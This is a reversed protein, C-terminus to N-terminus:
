SLIAGVQGAVGRFISVEKTVVERFEKSSRIQELCADYDECLGLAFRPSREQRVHGDKWVATAWAPLPVTSWNSATLFNSDTEWYDWAREDLWTALASPDSAVKPSPIPKKDKGDKYAYRLTAQFLNCTRHPVDAVIVSEGKSLQLADEKGFSCAQEEDPEPKRRLKVENRRLTTEGVGPIFLNRPRDPYYRAPIEALFVISGPDEPSPGVRMASTEFFYEGGGILETGQPSSQRNPLISCDTFAM